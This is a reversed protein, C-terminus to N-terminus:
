KTGYGPMSVKKGVPTKAAGNCPKLCPERKMAALATGMEAAVANGSRSSPDVNWAGQLSIHYKLESSREPPHAHINPNLGLVTPADGM